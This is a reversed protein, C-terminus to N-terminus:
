DDEKEDDGHHEDRAVRSWAQTTTPQTRPQSSGAGNVDVEEDDDDDTEADILEGDEDFWKRAEPLIAVRKKTDVGLRACEQLLDDAYNNNKPLESEHQRNVDTAANLRHPPPEYWTSVDRSYGLWKVLYEFIRSTKDARRGM